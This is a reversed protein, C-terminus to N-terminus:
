AWQGLRRGGERGAVVASSLRAPRTGDACDEDGTARRDDAVRGPVAVAREVRPRVGNEGAGTRREHRSQALFDLPAALSHEGPHAASLRRRAAREGRSRVQLLAPPPRPAAPSSAGILPWGGPPVTITEDPPNVIWYEPIRAARLRSAKDDPRARQQGPEGSGLGSRRRDARNQRRPDGADRILLSRARRYKRRSASGCPRSSHRQRRGAPPRAVFLEYPSVAPDVPAEDTLMPLVEVHRRHASSRRNTRDTLWLYDGEGWEGQRPLLELVLDDVQEQTTSDVVTMSNATSLAM